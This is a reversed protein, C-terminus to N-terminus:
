ILKILCDVLSSASIFLDITNAVGVKKGIKSTVL